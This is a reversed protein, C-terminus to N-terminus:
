CEMKEKAFLKDKSYHLYNNADIQITRYEFYKDITSTNTIEIFNIAKEGKKRKVNIYKNKWKYIEAPHVNINKNSFEELYGLKVSDPTKEDTIYIEYIPDIEINNILDEFCGNSFIKRYKFLICIMIFISLACFFYIKGLFSTLCPLCWKKCDSM